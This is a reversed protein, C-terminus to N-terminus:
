WSRGALFLWSDSKYHYKSWIEEPDEGDDTQLLTLLTYMAIGGRLDELFRNGHARCKLIEFFRSKDRYIVDFARQPRGFCSDLKRLQELPTKPVPYPIIASDPVKARLDRHEIEAYGGEIRHVWVLSDPPVSKGGVNLTQLTLAATPDAM